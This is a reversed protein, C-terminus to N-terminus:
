GKAATGTKIVDVATLMEKQFDNRGFEPNGSAVARMLLVSELVESPLKPLLSNSRAVAILAKKQEEPTLAIGNALVVQAQRITEMYGNFERITEFPDGEAKAEVTPAVPLPAEPTPVEAPPPAIAEAAEAAPFDSAGPSSPTLWDPLDETHAAQAEARYSEARAVNAAKKDQRYTAAVESADLDRPEGGPVPAPPPAPIETPGAPTSRDRLFPPLDGTDGTPVPPEVPVAESAPPPTAAIPAETEAPAESGALDWASPKKEGFGFSKGLGKLLRGVSLAEPM